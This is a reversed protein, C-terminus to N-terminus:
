LLRCFRRNRNRANLGLRTPECTEHEREVVFGAKILDVKNAIMIPYGFLVGEYFPSRLTERNFALVPSLDEIRVRLVEIAGLSRQILKGPAFVLDGLHQEEERDVGDRSSREARRDSTLGKGEVDLGFHLM